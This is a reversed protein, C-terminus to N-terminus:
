LVLPLVRRIVSDMSVRAHPQQPPLVRLLVGACDGRRPTGSEDSTAQRQRRSFIHLSIRTLPMHPLPISGVWTYDACLRRHFSRTATMGSEWEGVYAVREGAFADLAADALSDEGPSPMCLLLTREGGDRLEDALGATVRIDRPQRWDPPPVADLARLMSPTRPPPAGPQTPREARGGNRRIERALVKIWYGNGAGLEVVGGSRGLIAKAARKTPVAFAQHRACADRGVFLFALLRGRVKSSAWDMVENRESAGAVWCCGEVFRSRLYRLM